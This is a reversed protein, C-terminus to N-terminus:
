TSIVSASPPPRASGCATGVLWDALDRADPDKIEQAVCAYEDRELFTMDDDIDDDVRPLKTRKCCNTTRLQPEADVAAQVICYLLGHRNRISKPDAERRLWKEPDDPDREGDEERRVWDTVDDQTLSCVTAPVEIGDARTHVLHSFHLRIERHYDERTRIDIGTLRDVYRTAWTVLPM